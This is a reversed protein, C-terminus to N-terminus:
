GTTPVVPLPSTAGAGYGYSGVVGRALDVLAITAAVRGEVLDIDDVTSVAANLQEDARIPALWVGREAAGEADVYIEGVVTPAGANVLSGTFDRVVGRATIASAPGGLVLMRSGSGPWTAATVDGDGLGELTVFGAKALNDLVDPESAPAAGQALRFALADLAEARLRRANRTQSGIAARLSDASGEETLNWASELWLTAPAQAGAVQLLAVQSQAAAADVGREAVVAVPVDTLEDRVSYPSSASAFENMRDLESRLEANEARQADANAEVRDIRDRLNEVIARQVVTSGMVVGLALALFVAILSAIHFRFNIM